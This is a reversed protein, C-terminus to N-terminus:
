TAPWSSTGIQAAPDRTRSRGGGLGLRSLVVCQLGRSGLSSTGPKPKRCQSSARTEQCDISRANPTLTPAPSVPFFVKSAFSNSGSAHDPSVHARGTHNPSSRFAPSSPLLTPVPIRFGWAAAQGGRLARPGEWDRGGWGGAWGAGGAVQIRSRRLSSSGSSLGLAASLACHERLSGGLCRPWGM